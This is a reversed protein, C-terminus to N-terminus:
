QNNTLTKIQNSIYEKLKHMEGDTTDYTTHDFIYDARNLLEQDSLQHQMRARIKDADVKDRETARRLRIDAPAYILITKDVATNFNSEFLIACEMFCLERTSAWKQFDRKVAPHVISNVRQANGKDAFLYQAMLTKNLEGNAYLEDGVLETLEKIVDRDSTMIRKAENDCNYVEYGDKKLLDCIYSKGSGIGGTIGYTM